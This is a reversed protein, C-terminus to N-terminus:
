THAIRAWDRETMKRSIANWDMGQGWAAEEIAEEITDGDGYSVLVGHIRSVRVKYKGPGTHTVEQYEMGVFALMDVWNHSM